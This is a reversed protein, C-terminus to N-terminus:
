FLDKKQPSAPILFLIRTPETKVLDGDHQDWIPSLSSAPLRSHADRPYCGTTESRTDLAQTPRQLVDTQNAFAYGLIWQM